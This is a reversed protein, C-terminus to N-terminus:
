RPLSAPPVVLRSVQLGKPLEICGMDPWVASTELLNVGSVCTMKWWYGQFVVAASPQWCCAPYAGVKKWYWTLLQRGNSPLPASHGCIRSTLPQISGGYQWM